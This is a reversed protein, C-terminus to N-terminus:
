DSPRTSASRHRNPQLLGCSKDSSDTSRRRAITLEGSCSFSFLESSVAHYFTERCERGHLEIIYIRANNVWSQFNRSFIVKETGEIDIKLIDIEDRGSQGLLTPIDVAELDEKEGDMCERVTTAYESKGGCPGSSVKLGVRHSWLASCITTVRDGYGNLNQKLLEYNRKDPEVAILHADPFKSLLYASSYGVNAGCDIIFKVGRLNDILRYEDAIFIQSFVSVDSSNYRFVVPHQLQKANLTGTVYSGDINQNICSINNLIKTKWIYVLTNIVGVNRCAM